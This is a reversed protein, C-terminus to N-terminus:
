KAGRTLVPVPKVPLNSKLMQVEARLQGVEFELNSVKALLAVAGSEMLFESLACSGCEQHGSTTNVWATPICEHGCRACKIDQAPAKTELMKTLM